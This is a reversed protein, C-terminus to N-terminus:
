VGQSDLRPNQYHHLKSIQSWERPRCVEVGGATAIKDPLRSKRFKSEFINMSFHATAALEVSFRNPPFAVIVRKKDFLAKVASVPPVLDADASIIIAVNLPMRM